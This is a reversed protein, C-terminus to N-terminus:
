KVIKKYAKKVLAKDGEFQLKERNHYLKKLLKKSLCSSKVFAREISTLSRKKKRKIKKTM